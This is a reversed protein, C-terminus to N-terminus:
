CKQAIRMQIINQQHSLSTLQGYFFFKSVNLPTLNYSSCHPCQFTNEGMVETYGFIRKCGQCCFSLANSDTLKLIRRLEAEEDRLIRQVHHFYRTNRVVFEKNNEKKYYTILGLKDLTYLEQRVENSSSTLTKEFLTYEIEQLPQDLILGCLLMQFENLRYKALAVGFVPQNHSEQMIAALARVKPRRITFSNMFQLLGSRKRVVVKLRGQWNSIAHDISFQDLLSTIDRLLQPDNQIISIHIKPRIKTGYECSDTIRCWLKKSNLYGEFWAIKQELNLWDPYTFRKTKYGM